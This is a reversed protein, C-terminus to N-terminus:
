FISVLMHEFETADVVELGGEPDPSGFGSKIDVSGGTNQAILKPESVKRREPSSLTPTPSSVSTSPHMWSDFMSSLRSRSVSSRWDSTATFFGSSTPASDRNASDAKQKATGDGESEEEESEELSALRRVTDESPTLSSSSM